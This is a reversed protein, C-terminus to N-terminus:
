FQKNGYKGQFTQYDNAIADLETMARWTDIALVESEKTVDGKTLARLQVNMRERVSQHAPACALLNGGASTNGGQLFHPWTAAFFTKLASFYYCLMLRMGDDFVDVRGDYLIRGLDDLLEPRGTALYGQFLNDCSLFTGFPVDHFSTELPVARGRYLVPLRFPRAPPQEMWALAEMGAAMTEPSIIFRHGNRNKVAYNGNVRGYVRWGAWSVFCCAQVETIDASEAMLLFVTLLRRGDLEHWGTPMKVDISM